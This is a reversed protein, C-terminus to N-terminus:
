MQVGYKRAADEVEHWTSHIDGNAKRSLQSVEQEAQQHDAWPTDDSGFMAALLGGLAAGDEENDLKTKAQQVVAAEEWAHIHHSYATRFDEPCDSLDVNRMANVHDMTAAHGTLTDEHIAKQIASKYIQDQIWGCGTFSIFCLAAISAFLLNKLNLM